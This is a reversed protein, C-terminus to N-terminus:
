STRRRRAASTALFMAVIALMGTGPEPVRVIRLVQGTVGGPGLATSVLVYLEGDADQGFGKVFQGLPLDALGLKFEFMEGTDLDGYFLRGAPSGFGNSFDGFVYKGVLAPIASGRYVFGGIVSIGEDHDYEIVPDIPDFGIPIPIAPFPEDDVVTNAPDFFFSGEKLRWGYNGGAEIINVEEIDGQGVDGAILRGTTSPTTLGTAPDVDFSFRFPNRLGYAYIEDLVMPDSVFPNDDPIGYQGNASDNGLPDIRLINGFINTRDLANGTGATHGNGLDNGAGGDGIAIYLHGDPGFTVMGANHNFQPDNIRMLERSLSNLDGTIENLAPDVTWERVVAQNNFSTGGDIPVTFDATDPSVVPENTYTYFKGFGSMGDNEFNPHFALGLLGREDFGPSLNALLSGADLYPAVQQVGNNILWIEGTQDVVFLRGSGDGAHTLYNPGVLGTAIPALDIAIAGKPIPGPIPDDLQALLRSSTGVTLVVAL